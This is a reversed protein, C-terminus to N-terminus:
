TLSTKTHTAHIQDESDIAGSHMAPGSCHGRRKRRRRRRRRWFHSLMGPIHLPSFKSYMYVHIYRHPSVSTAKLVVGGKGLNVCDDSMKFSSCTAKLVTTLVTAKNM